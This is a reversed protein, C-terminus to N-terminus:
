KCKVHQKSLKDKPKKAADWWCREKKDRLNYAGVPFILPLLPLKSPAAKYGTTVWTAGWHDAGRL